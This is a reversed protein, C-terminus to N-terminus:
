HARLGPPKMELPTLGTRVFDVLEMALRCITATDHPTDLCASAIVTQVAWRRLAADSMDEM